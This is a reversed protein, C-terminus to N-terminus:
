FPSLSFWSSLLFVKYLHSFRHRFHESALTMIMHSLASDFYAYIFVFIYSLSFYIYTITQSGTSIGPSPLIRIDRLEIISLM